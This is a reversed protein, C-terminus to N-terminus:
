ATYQSSGAERVDEFEPYARLVPLQEVPSYLVESITIDVKVTNPAPLPGEYRLYFTHSNVHAQRDESEFTFRIGSADAVLEYV